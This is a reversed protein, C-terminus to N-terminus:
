ASTQLMYKLSPPHSVVALLGRTALLQKQRTSPLPGRSKLGVNNASLSDLVHQISDYGDELKVGITCCVTRAEHGDRDTSALMDFDRIWASDPEIIREPSHPTEIRRPPRTGPRVGPLGANTDHGHLALITAVARSYIVDMKLIDRHKTAPDDQVICLCDVWLYREELAKVLRMADEITAPLQQLLAGKGLRSQLNGRLTKPASIKGWVYSLAFYRCSTSSRVLCRNVVDILLVSDDLPTEFKRGISSCSQGHERECNHIWRSILTTSVKQGM